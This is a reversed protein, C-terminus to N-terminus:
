KFTQVLENSGKGLERQGVSKGDEKEEYRHREYATIADEFDNEVM